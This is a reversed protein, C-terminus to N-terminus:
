RIAALWPFLGTVITPAVQPTWIGAVLTYVSANNSGSNTIVLRQILRFDFKRPMLPVLAFLICLLLRNMPPAKLTPWGLM